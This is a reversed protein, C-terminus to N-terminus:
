PQPESFAALPATATTAPPSESRPPSAATSKQEIASAAPSPTPPAYPTQGTLSWQWIAAFLVILLAVSSGQALLLASTPWSMGAAGLLVALVLLVGPRRVARVNLLTLGVVLMVAGATWLLVSRSVFLVPMAAPSRFTSFLYANMEAPLPTQQSAGIWEELAPQDLTGLREWFSGRWKWTLEPTFGVPESILHERGPAVIQWYCHRAQGAGEITPPALSTLRAAASDALPIRYWVEVVREGPRPTIPVVLVNGDRRGVAQQKDIAIQDEDVEAEPPLAIRLASSGTSVRWVAREQRLDGLLLTQLWLKSVILRSGQASDSSRLQFRWEASLASSTARLEDRSMSEIVPGVAGAPGVPALEVHLADVWQASVTQGLEVQDVEEDPIVLPIALTTPEGAAMPPVPLTYQVTLECPGIQETPVTVQVRALRSSESDGDALPIAPIVESGLMVKPVDGRVLVSRPVQLRFTRQPEYLIRYTLKQEVQAAREAFQVHAAAAVTTQRTRIQSQGVFRAEGGAGRDRYVLPPQQRPTLSVPPPQTDAVLGIIERAKATLEVNDSPVVVVSAPTVIDAMPRPLSFTLDTSGEALLKHAQLRIEFEGAVARSRLPLVLTQASPDLSEVEVLTEPEVKAFTWDALAIALSPAPAGRVRYRLTAELRLLKPEVYVVYTPEVAIRTPRPEIAVKLGCPQRFYDFRAVSAAAVGLPAPVEVRRTSADQTWSLSWDGDVAFDITGRQRSAGLVEFRAPAIAEQPKGEGDTAPSSLAAVLRIEATGTVPRDLKVEVLPSEKEAASADSAPEVLTVTYGSPNAPVYEMKPPLRVRFTQLSGNLSRVTLRAESSVRSRGEIKVSIEGAAELVMRTGAAMAQAPQWFLSLEGGAGLVEIESKGDVARTAVLGEGSGQVEAEARPLPVQLKLSSETARPLTAELRSQAGLESIAITLNLKVVHPKDHPGFLWCVYGDQEDYKVFHEGPSEFTAAQRLVAKNFRLPVGVGGTERVRIQATVLLNALNNEVSGSIALSDLSYPPPAPPALGRKLKQLEEFVEFPMGVVPILNGKSDRFYYTDPPDSQPLLPVETPKQGESAPTPVPDSETPPQAVTPAPAEDDQGVALAGYMGGWAILAALLYPCLRM